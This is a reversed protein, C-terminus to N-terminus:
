GDIHSDEEYDVNNGKKIEIIKVSKSKSANKVSHKCFEPFFCSDNQSLIKKEGDKTIEVSGDVITWNECHKKHYHLKIEAGPNISIEEIRYDNSVTLARSYGWDTIEIGSSVAEPSNMSELTKVVEKIKEVGDFDSILLSDETDIIALNKIGITSVIRKGGFVLINKSDINILKEKPIRTAVGDKDRPLIEYLSQFSGIDSWGIDSPVVAIKDSKEMLAYDISINDYNKFEEVTIFEGKKIKSEFSKTTDFIKPSYKALESLFFGIQFIFIGANWYYSGDKLYNQAVSLTPKEVFNEVVYGEDLKNSSKKIYGYGTKPSTPIIGLTVIFNKLAIKGAESLVRNFEASNTIHHDSSLITVVDENNFFISSYAIAPATNRGIPEIIINNESYNPFIARMQNMIVRKGGANTIIYIDAGETKSVRQATNQLMSYDDVLNLFQKPYNKRSLPWLRTGSGGALILYKM